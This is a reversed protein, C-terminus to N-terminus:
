RIISKDSKLRRLIFPSTIKKFRELCDKDREQEIPLAFRDKFQKPTGLYRKNSFDFISWYELLRNEVPTGSMAIKHRSEISKIAKKRWSNEHDKAILKYVSAVIYM